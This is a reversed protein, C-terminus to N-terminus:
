MRWSLTVYLLRCGLLVSVCTIYEALSLLFCTLLCVCTHAISLAARLVRTFGLTLTSGVNLMYALSPNLTDIKYFYQQKEDTTLHAIKMHSIMWEWQPSGLLPKSKTRLIAAAVFFDRSQFEHNPNGFDLSFFGMIRSLWGHSWSLIM